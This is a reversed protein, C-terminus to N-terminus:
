CKRLRWSPLDPLSLSQKHRRSIITYMSCECSSHIPEKKWNLFPYRVTGEQYSDLNAEYYENLVFTQETNEDLVALLDHGIGTGVTNVGSSDYIAAFLDPNEDTIGGRVFSEDNMYLEVIPGENDEAANANLGGVTVTDMYGAADIADTHAYLSVKGNGYKLASIKPYM